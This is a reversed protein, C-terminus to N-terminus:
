LYPLTEREIYSEREMEKRKEERQKNKKKKGGGNQDLIHWTPSYKEQWM